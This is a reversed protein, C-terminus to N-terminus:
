PINIKKLLKFNKNSRFNFNKSYSAVLLAFFTFTIYTERSSCFIDVRQLERFKNIVTTYTNTTVTVQEREDVTLYIVKLFVNRKWFKNLM